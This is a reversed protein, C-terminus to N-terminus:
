ESRAGATASRWADGRRNILIFWLATLNMLFAYVVSPITMAPMRLLTAAVYIGVGANHLGCEISIAVRDRRYLGALVAVGFGLAMAGLNQFLAAPAVSTFKEVLVQRQSLFTAVVIALFLAIAVREATKAFRTVALPCRHKLLMGLIVPVTTLFFVGGVLRGVSLDVGSAGGMFHSLSLEVILPMTLVAAVSTIATLSISLATDGRALHTILGSSAGGPCAAVIMLGVAMIPSLGFASAIAAALLPVLVIQGLLGALVARPRAAVRRFDGPALTLGLAFMIFALSLPLLVDLIM